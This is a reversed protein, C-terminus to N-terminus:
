SQRTLPPLTGALARLAVADDADRLSAAQADLAILVPNLSALWRRATREGADLMSSLGPLAAKPLLSFLPEWHSDLCGVAACQPRTPCLLRAYDPPLLPTDVPCTLVWDHRAASLAAEFGALPGAFDPRLDSVVRHGFARYCDLNRNAVIILEDVQPALAEIVWAVLPRGRFDVLGKDQGGMRRAAGGALIVGTLPQAPKM